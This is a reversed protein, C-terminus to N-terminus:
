VILIFLILIAFCMLDGNVYKLAPGTKNLRNIFLSTFHPTKIFLYALRNVLYADYRYMNTKIYKIGIVGIM